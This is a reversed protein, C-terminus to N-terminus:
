SCSYFSLTQQSVFALHKSDYVHLCVVIVSLIGPGESIHLLATLIFVFNQICYDVRRSADLTQLQKLNTSQVILGSM